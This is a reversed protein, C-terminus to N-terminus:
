CYTVLISKTCWFMWGLYVDYHVIIVTRNVYVGYWKFVLLCVMM